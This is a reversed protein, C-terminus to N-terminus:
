HTDPTSKRMKIKNKNSIAIHLCLLGQNSAAFAADSRPRCQKGLHWYHTLICCDFLPQIFTRACRFTCTCYIVNLMYDANEDPIGFCTQM